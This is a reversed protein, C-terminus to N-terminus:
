PTFFRYYPCGSRMARLAKGEVVQDFTIWEPVYEDEGIRFSGDANPVLVEEDGDAACYYLHGKRQFIRFNTEWPNHSRYHGCFVEWEASIPFTKPGQYRQNVFWKPGYNAEIVEGKESRGFQILFLNWDPHNASFSGSGRDELVVQQEGCIMMLHHENAELIMTCDESQYTGAYEAPDKIHTFDPLPPADPLQHGLYAARFFELILFSARPTYPESMLVVSGIGNTLDLWMYAEYGPVDGGHGAIQYGDDEFLYFGYGYTEGEDEIMPAVLKRYSQESLVQENPGAGENLMMRAFKAMDDATSVICGDGSNTEVWAAPVIPQGVQGPRDDYLYRYGSAMCPRLSSSTVAYTDKMELPILIKERILEDYHKGTVKELVLGLVKYGADSYCFHKGPAFGVRANRLSYVEARPDPSFDTGRPLGSSHTLLHHITIPEFPSQVEFWPLYDTVPARLKLLGAECAQLVAVATFAKGVSGIPFLHDRRLPEKTELNAFGFSSVRVSKDRDTLAMVLAPTHFAQMRELLCRDLRTFAEQYYRNPTV